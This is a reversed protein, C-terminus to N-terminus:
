FRLDLIIHTLVVHYFEFTRLATVDVVVAGLVLFNELVLQLEALETFGAPLM